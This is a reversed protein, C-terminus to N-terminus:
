GTEHDGTNWLAFFRAERWGLKTGSLILCWETTLESGTVRPGIVSALVLALDPKKLPGTLTIDDVSTTLWSLNRHLWVSGGDVTVLDGPKM